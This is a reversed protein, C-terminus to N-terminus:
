DGGQPVKLEIWVERIGQLPGFRDCDAASIERYLLLTGEKTFTLGSGEITTVTAFVHAALPVVWYPVIPSPSEFDAPIPRTPVDFSLSGGLNLPIM